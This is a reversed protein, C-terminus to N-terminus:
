PYACFATPAGAAVAGTTGANVYQWRHVPHGGIWYVIEYVGITFVGHGPPVAIPGWTWPTPAPAGGPHFQVIGHPAATWTEWRASNEGGTGYWHWGTAQTYWAVWGRTSVTTAVVTTFDPEALYSQTAGAQSCQLHGDTWFGPEAREGGGGPQLSFSLRSAGGQRVTATAAVTRARVLRKAVRPSVTFRATARNGACRYLTRGLAGLKGATATVTGNAQCAFPLAFSRRARNFAVPAASLLGPGPAAVPLVAPTGPPVFTPATGPSVPLQEGGGPPPGPPDLAAAGAPFVAGAVLAAAVASRARATRHRM